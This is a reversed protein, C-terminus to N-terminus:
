NKFDELVYQPVSLTAFGEKFFSISIEKESPKPNDSEYFRQGLKYFKIKRRKLEEIAKYQIIHGLPKDFLNRDYAASKYRGEDETFEFFAGGVMKLSDNTLSIFFAKDTKINEYQINWTEDSRTVKGSVESHLSKFDSWIDESINKKHIEINWSKEAVGILPKYSKRFLKKIYELNEDLQVYLNYRVKTTMGKSLCLSHWDSIALKGEFPLLCTWNKNKSVKHLNKIIGFVESYCKKITKMPCNEIFVPPSIHEDGSFFNLSSDKECILIPWIGVPKNDSLIVISQDLIEVYNQIHKKFEYDIMWNLYDLPKYELQNFVIDWSSPDDRRLIYKLKSNNFVDNIINHDM